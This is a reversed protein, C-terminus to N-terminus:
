DIALHAVLIYRKPAAGVYVFPYCTSVTLTARPRPVIVTRDDKDVIRVKDVIYKFQGADTTVLLTDGKGVKGLEQFVTNRHGSLICNDKEGPLVSGIYHGVGLALENSGTGEYIPLKLDLKPISLEGFRAGQEPRNFYLLQAENDPLADYSDSFSPEEAYSKLAHRSRTYHYTQYCVLWLGVLALLLAAPYFYRYGHSKYFCSNHKKRKM